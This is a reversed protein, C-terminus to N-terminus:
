KVQSINDSNNNKTLRKLQVKLRPRNYRQILISPINYISYVIAVPLSVTWVFLNPMFLLSIFAFIIALVACSIHLSEAYCTEVLFKQIYEANNADQLKDKKFNVTQGMEPIKDKWKKIGIKLLFQREKDGVQYIKRNPNFWERPLMRIIIAVFLSPLLVCAFGILIYLATLWAFNFVLNLVIITFICFFLIGFYM